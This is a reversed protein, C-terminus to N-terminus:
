FSMAYLVVNTAIRFACTRLYGKGHLVAGSDLACGIDYKSYIVVTRNDITIGELTPKELDPHAERVARTYRVKEITHGCSYVPHDPPLMKLEHDPLVERMLARFSTDFAKKGCLANAFLVGSRQLYQRLRTKEEDSMTFSYAGSMYLLPFDYLDTDTLALPHHRTVTTLNAQRSMASLLKPVALADMNWRGNHRVKGVVLAGRRSSGAVVDTVKVVTVRDLKDKLPEMGTAYACINTGLKFAGLDQPRDQHWACSLDQPMYVLATRCHIDIGWLTKPGTWKYFASYIPHDDPLRHLKFEPEHFVERALRRFGRDFALRGCCAEALIFGGQDVYERLRKKETEDFFPATHGHFYLIPAELLEALPDKATVVQWSLAHKWQAGVFRVLNRIDYPDNDWDGRWRVKQVLVPSRGKALFLTAFATKMVFQASRGRGGWSGGAAQTGVLSTVGEKYWNHAGLYKRASVMGVRELGYLYYYLWQGGRRPPNTTVSFNRAFWNIADTIAKDQRYRGCVHRGFDTQLRVGAMYLSALGATTMSGYSQRQGPTYGWGGDPNQSNRFHREIRAWVQKDIPIGARACADLGLVAYQTNSNDGTRERATYRWMGEHGGTKVQADTLWKACAALDARYTTPNAAALVMAKLGVVYTFQNQFTVIRALAKQVAPDTEPVGATLMALTALCTIGGPRGYDPWTGNAGQQARLYAVAKDIAAQVQQGTVAQGRAIPGSAVVCSVAVLATWLVRRCTWGDRM